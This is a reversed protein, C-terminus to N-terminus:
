DDKGRELHVMIAELDAEAAPCPLLPADAARVLASVGGKERRPGILLPQIAAAAAQAETLHALRYAAAFTRREAEARIRGNRIYLIRDACRDLDSTIHTSFLITVGEDSLALLVEQLEDRSIPDLGSTPEDLLLLEARHSLALALAYKVRMGASLEAPTKTEDLSFRALLGRYAGDDWTDYFRRTVDTITRLKKGTYFDVGGSVFGIRQKIAREDEAFPRGFFRVEGSDPRVFRLLSRLTTTKGAGNRGIFGTIQGAPLSFSVDRLAFAPYQKCLHQVELVNM